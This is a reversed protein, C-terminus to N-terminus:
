GKGPHVPLTFFTLIVHVNKETIVSYLWNESRRSIGNETEDRKGYRVKPVFIKNGTGYRNGYRDTFDTFERESRFDVQLYLKSM